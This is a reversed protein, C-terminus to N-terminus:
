PAALPEPSILIGSPFNGQSDLLRACLQWGYIYDEVKFLLRNWGQQLKLAMIHDQDKELARSIDLSFILQDNLWVKVGDDSGLWLDIREREPM